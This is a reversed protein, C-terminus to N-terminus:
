FFGDPHCMIKGRARQRAFFYLMIKDTFFLIHTVDVRTNTGCVQQRAISLQVCKDKSKAKLQLNGIDLLVEEIKGVLFGMFITSSVRSLVDDILCHM